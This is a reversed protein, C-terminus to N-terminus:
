FEQIYGCTTEIHHKISIKKVFGLGPYHRSAHLTFFEDLGATRTFKNPNAYVYRVLKSLADMFKGGPNTPTRDDYSSFHRVHMADYEDRNIYSLHVAVVYAPGGSESYDESLITFDGFGVVNDLARYETHLGSFLSDESYDSNKVEKKFFDGYVVKNRLEAFAISSVRSQNVLTYMSHNVISVLARDVSSELYVAARGNFSQFLAVAASDQPNKIKVCPLYLGAEEALLSSIVDEGGAYDGLAPNIVVLPIIENSALQQITRKLPSINERVPEIVPKIYQASVIGSLERLAILENQKGKLIPFYM